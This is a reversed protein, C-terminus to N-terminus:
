QHTPNNITQIFINTYLENPNFNTVALSGRRSNISVVVNNTLSSDLEVRHHQLLGIGSFNRGFEAGIVRSENVQVGPCNTTTILGFGIGVILHHTGGRDTWSCSTLGLSLVICLFLGQIRCQKGKPVSLIM